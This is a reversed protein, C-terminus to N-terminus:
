YVDTPPPVGGGERRTRDLRAVLDAVGANTGRVRRHRRFYVYEELSRSFTLSWACFVPVVTSLILVPVMEIVPNSVFIVIVVIGGLCALWSGLALWLVAWRRGRWFKYCLFLAFASRFSTTGIRWGEADRVRMSVSFAAWLVVAAIVIAMLLRGKNLRDEFTDPM